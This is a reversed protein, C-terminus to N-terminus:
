TPDLSSVNTDDERKLHVKPVAIVWRGLDQFQARFSTIKETPITELHCRWPEMKDYLVRTKNRTPVPLLAMLLRHADNIPVDAFSAVQLRGAESDYRIYTKTLGMIQQLQEPGFIDELHVESADEKLLTSFTELDMDVSRALRYADALAAAM